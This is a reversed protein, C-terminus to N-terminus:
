ITFVDSINFPFCEGNRRIAKDAKQPYDGGCSNLIKLSIKDGRPFVKLIKDGPLYDAYTSSFIVKMRSHGNFSLRAIYWYILPTRDM